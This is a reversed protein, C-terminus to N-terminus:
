QRAESQAATGRWARRGEPSRCRLAGDSARRPNPLPVAGRAAAKLRGADCRAMVPAGRIPCDARYRAAAKQRGADCRAM